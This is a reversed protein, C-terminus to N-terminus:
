NRRKWLKLRVLWLKDLEQIKYKLENEYGDKKIQKDLDNILGSTYYLQSLTIPKHLEKIIINYYLDYKAPNYLLRKIHRMIFNYMGSEM